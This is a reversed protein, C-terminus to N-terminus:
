IRGNKEWAELSRRMEESTPPQLGLDKMDEIVDELLHSFEQTNYLHSGPYMLVSVMTKGYEQWEGVVEIERWTQKLDELGEKVIASSYCKGHAKLKQLYVDWKDQHTAYAIETLCKWFLANADISRKKKFIKASITLVRDRLADALGLAETENVTFTIRWESSAWDKALGVLRGTFEM